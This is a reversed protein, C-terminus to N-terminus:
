AEDVCDDLSTVAKTNSERLTGKEVSTVFTEDRDLKYAKLFNAVVGDIEKESKAHAVSERILATVRTPLGTEKLKKDLHKELKNQRSDERLRAVEAKLEIMAKAEKHKDAEKPADKKPHEDEDGDADPNMAKHVEGACKMAEVARAAAEEGKHGMKKFAAMYHGGAEMAEHSEAEDGGGKVLGQKKLMKMILAKDADEDDHEGGDEGDEAETEMAEKAEAEAEKAEAEAEKKDAEAEKLKKADKGAAKIASEAEKIKAAASKKKAEAEKIKQDKTKMKKEAELLELIKGKAGAETVLDVSVADQIDRVVKIENLGENIADEVKKKASDAIEVEALFDAVDMPEAEGSANISLGIFQKDTYKKSFDVAREVLSHVWQYSDGRMLLLNATLMGSGDAAEEFAVDEYHGVIDRTSREPRTAEEMKDPHDAFMKKGEFIKHDAAKQLAEKTYFYGDKLNGLGEQIIVVRASAINDGPAKELFRGGVELFGSGKIAASASEKTKGRVLQPRATSQECEKPVVLYNSKAVHDKIRAIMSMHPSAAEKKHGGHFPNASDASNKFGSEKAKKIKNGRWGLFKSM